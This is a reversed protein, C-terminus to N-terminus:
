TGTAARSPSGLSSALTAVTDVGIRDLARITPINLSYTLADRMLM